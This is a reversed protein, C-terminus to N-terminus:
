RARPSLRGSGANSATATREALGPRLEVASVACRDRRYIGHTRKPNEVSVGCLPMPYTPQGLALPKLLFPMAPFLSVGGWSRGVNRGETEESLDDKVVIMPLRFENAKKHALHSAEELTM